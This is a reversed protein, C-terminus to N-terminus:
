MPEKLLDEISEVALECEESESGGDDIEAKALSVFDEIIHKLDPRAKITDRAYSVLDNYTKM